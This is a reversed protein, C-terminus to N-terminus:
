QPGGTTLTTYFGVADNAILQADHRERIRRRASDGLRRRRAEDRLLHDLELIFSEADGTKALVGDVDHTILEPIGGQDSAVVPKGAGMAELLSYPCNEWLSPQLVIDATRVLHRAINSDVAGLMRISGKLDM